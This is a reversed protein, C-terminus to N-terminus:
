ILGRFLSKNIRNTGEEIMRKEAVTDGNSMRKCFDNGQSFLTSVYNSMSNPDIASHSGSIKKASAIMGAYVPIDVPHLFFPLYPYKDNLKKYWAQVESIEWLPRPDFDYGNILLGALCNIQSRTQVNNVIQDVISSIFTINGANIHKKGIIMHIALSVSDGYYVNSSGKPSFRPDLSPNPRFSSVFQAVQQDEQDFVVHHQITASSHTNQLLFNVFEFQKTNQNDTNEIPKQGKEGFIKEFLGM